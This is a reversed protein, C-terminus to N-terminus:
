LIIYKSELVFHKLFVKSVNTILWIFIFLHIYLVCTSFVPYSLMKYSKNFKMLYFKFFFFANFSVLSVISIFLLIYLNQTTICFAILERKHLYMVHTMHCGSQSTVGYLSM